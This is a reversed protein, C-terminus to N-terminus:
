LQPEAEVRDVIGRAALGRVEGGFRALDRPAVAVLCVTGGERSMAAVTSGGAGELMAALDAGADGSVRFMATGPPMGASARRRAEALLFPVPEWRILSQIAADGPHRTQLLVRGGDRRPGAWQAAEMWTALAQEPAHLGARTRARDPDLIAVLDVRLAGADHVSAATGVWLGGAAHLGGTGDDVDVARGAMRTAWEGVRETGGREVGFDSGGCSACVGPSRCVRCAPARREIGIPGGCTACAAPAGCSRCVRAVGYGRRSVILTASRVNRLLAALRPSRDEAEPPTTEVLPAALRETPRPARAVRISGANAGAATEVSPSLSALVCAAGELTAREAAVDRVHYYPARDERHGPHVERSIWLLGLGEVPAFVAPRTGVVVDHIGSRIRLWSRYRARPEGGAFACARDDFRDLIAQATAPLPDVTPVIVIARRGAALCADVAALCAGAEDGPLPRLWTVGPSLLTSGGGYVDLAEGRPGPASPRRGPARGAPASGEESVVRPPYSREIVTALPAVYRESMWRLLRLMAPDFFRVSSRVARVSLLRGGPVSEAEGLVWADVTRRHFPVRVL